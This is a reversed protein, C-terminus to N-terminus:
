YRGDIPAPSRAGRHSGAPVVAVARQSGWAAAGLFPGTVARGVAAGSFGIGGGIAAAIGPLSVVIFAGLAFFMCLELLIQIEYPVSGAGSNPNNVVARLYTQEGSLIINMVINILVSLIALGVLKGLWRESVPKTADFLYGALVFPGVAVVVGTMVQAIEYIAFTVFLILAVIIQVVALTVEDVIDYFNIQSQVATIEHVTTNWIQDFVM